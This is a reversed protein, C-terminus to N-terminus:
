HHRVPGRGLGTLMKWGEEGPSTLAIAQLIAIESEKLQCRNLQEAFLFIEDVMPRSLFVNM